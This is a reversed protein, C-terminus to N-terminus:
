PRRETPPRIEDIGAMVIGVTGDHRLLHAHEARLFDLPCPDPAVMWTQGDREVREWGETM